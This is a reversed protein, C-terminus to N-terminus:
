NKELAYKWYRTEYRTFEEVFHMGVKEAVRKSALNGVRILSVLKPLHLVEKHGPFRPSFVPRSTRSLRRM